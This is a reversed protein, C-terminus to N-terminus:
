EVSGSYEAAAPRDTHALHPSKGSLDHVHIAQSELNDHPHALRYAQTVEANSEDIKYKLYAAEARQAEDHRGLARLCLMVHYNAVRDEPDIRLVENMADIAQDFKGDLYYTRGLNRWTARDEPFKQLVRRYASAAEVYRGDDQLVLGWFWATQPDNSALEECKLLHDYAAPLNGDQIAVRALNRPGDIREPALKAVEAFAKEAGKTDSQLLLGIGYDNFRMWDKALVASDIPRSLAAESPTAVVPLVVEHRCIETVPLDPCEDFRKFAQRNANFAFETYARDFKRWLLRARLKLNKGPLPPVEIQYHVAHATGPGIVNAYVAAYIDQANRKHIPQSNRDVILARFYHAAPDVYGDAGMSGSQYVVQDSEDLLTFEIWSENSDNTGGPFTHGVGKNRVVVDFIVDEGAILAPATRDVAYLTEVARGDKQRVLAFVDIRLKEDRLFAEIRKITDDDGRVYPLATNVALFRHSRVQGNKAAVDGLPAPEPPMHCDQCVKKAPPLYFTRSANLAVGSDHWNDYEDQGRLWRYSNVPEQLSVKHCTSCFEGTRFFPKLMQRKHADPKAKIATDHLLALVSGTKANPFLYPDEQEDAINYAANGTQNHIQDIAHCALCTLGAQAQPSRRDVPDTMKGALMVSPDHCGSCWKSKIEGRRDQWQPFCEMHKAVGDNITTANTRMDNITAEYFPNNFSAFRHASKSWQEVVDAHCRQCTEAGIKENVVFGVNDLDPALKEPASTDGRTIIREPLYDGTTTTAASPFFVSGPPVFSASVFKSEQVIAPEHSNPVFKALDRLKSSPGSYTGRTQARRAEDTLQLGRNSFGHGVLMVVLLAALATAYRTYLRPAPRVYSVSRHVIYAAPVFVAAIVHTWWVWTHERTAAAYMIFPGTIALVLGSIVFTLGSIVTRPRHRRWVKPLHWTGFALLMVVVIIGLGTHSLVMAQFLKSITYEGQAFYAAFPGPLVTALRNALLYLTNALLLASLALATALLTRQGRTLLSQPGPRNAKPDAM